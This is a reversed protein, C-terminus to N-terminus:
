LGIADDFYRKRDGHIIIRDAYERAEAHLVVIDASWVFAPQPIMRMDVHM